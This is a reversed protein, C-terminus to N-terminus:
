QNYTVANGTRPLPATQITDSHGLILAGCIEEDEKLGNQVFFARLPPVDRMMSFLNIWCSGIGEAAAALMMNQLACACDAVQNPYGKKSATLVLVPAGHTVDVPGLKAREIMGVFPKPMGERVPTNALVGTVIGRLAALSEPNTIVIFHTFQNNVASPAYRGAEIVSEVIAAELPKPSFSRTSRRARVLQSFPANKLNEM